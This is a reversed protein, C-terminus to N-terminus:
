PLFQEWFQGDLQSQQRTVIMRNPSFLWLYSQDAQLVAEVEPNAYSSFNLGCGAVDDEANGFDRLMFTPLDVPAGVVLMADFRQQIFGESPLQSGAIIEIGIARMQKQLLNIIAFLDVQPAASPFQAFDLQITLQKGPEALKCYLCERWGDGDTDRWGADFLLRRAGIIDQTIPEIEPNFSPRAPPLIAALPVGDGELAADIIAETNLVMQMAQRVVVDSLIPHAERNVPNGADDFAPQRDAPNELNLIVFTSLNGPYSYVRSTDDMRLDARRDYPPEVLLNLDGRLYSDTASVGNVDVFSYAVEGANSLLHISEDVRREALRFTGGTVTPNRFESNTTVDTAYPFAYREYWTMIDGDAYDISKAFDATYAHSPVVHFNAQPLANCGADSYVFEITQANVPAVAEVYQFLGSRYRSGRLALQFSFFVDYATIPMGDSWARDDRLSYTVHNGDLEWSTVLGSEDDAPVLAGTASDINLLTPFLLDAIRECTNNTCFLPNLTQIDRESLPNGEVILLNTSQASATPLGALGALLMFYLWRLRM